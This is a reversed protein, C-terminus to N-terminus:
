RGAELTVSIESGDTATQTWTDGVNKDGVYGTCAREGGEPTLCIQDGEVAYSGTLHQGDATHAMFSGDANFHYRTQSGDANTVVITNAYANEMTDAFAAGATLAAGLALLAALKKM